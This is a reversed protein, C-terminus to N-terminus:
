RNSVSRREEPTMDRWMMNLSRQIWQNHPDANGARAFWRYANPRSMTVCNGSAYMAGLQTMAPANDEKAAEQFYTLAQQCNRQVGRGYLYNQGLILMKNQHPDAPKAEVKAAAAPKPKTAAVEKERTPAPTQPKAEEPKTAAPTPAHTVPEPTTAKSPSSTAAPNEGASTTPTPSSSSESATSNSGNANEAPTATSSDSAIKTEASNDTAAPNSATTSPTGDPTTVQAQEAEKPQDGSSSKLFPIEVKGTQYARWEIWGIVSLVIVAVASFVIWGTRGRHPEEEDLLYSKDDVDSSDTLGLFSPGSITPVPTDEVHTAVPRDTEKVTPAPLGDEPNFEPIDLEEEPPLAQGTIALGCNGCFHNTDPNEHHCFSCIM